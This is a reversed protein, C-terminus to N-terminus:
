QGNGELAKLAAGELVMAREDSSEVFGLRDYFAFARPNDHYVSLKIFRAGWVAEGDSLAAALLRRGLGGGRATGSVWLDSVYIGASGRKTSFLPSYVAIGATEDAAEAIVARFSPNVGFGAARLDDASALHTDGMDHSLQRLARDLADVDDPGARRIVITEM